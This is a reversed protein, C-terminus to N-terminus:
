VGVVESSKEGRKKWHGLPEDLSWAKATVMDLMHKTRTLLEMLQGNVKALDAVGEGCKGGMSRVDFLEPLVANGKADVVHLEPVGHIESPFDDEACHVESSALLDACFVRGIIIEVVVGSLLNVKSAIIPTSCSLNRVRMGMSSEFAVNASGGSSYAYQM